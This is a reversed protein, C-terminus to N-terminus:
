KAKRWSPPKIHAPIRVDDLPLKTIERAPTHSPLSAGTARLTEALASGASSVSKPKAAIDQKARCVLSALYADVLDDSNANVEGKRIAENIAHRVSRTHKTARWGKDIVEIEGISQGNELYCGASRIDEEARIHVVVPHGILDFRNSLEENTYHASDIQVYPRRLKGKQIKGRVIKTEVVVGLPPTQATVPPPIRPLIFGNSSVATDLVKLPTQGGLGRQPTANYDAMLADLIDILDEWDIGYENARHVSPPKLADNPNSGTSSPLIQFGHSELTRFFRELVANRWWAKIPGYSLACGLSKRLAHLMRNSYHQAANDMMVVCPRFCPLGDITGVPLGGGERYKINSSRLPRRQWPQQAITFAHEIISSSLEKAISASYGFVARSGHDQVVSIWLRDIAVSQIGAPGPVRVVGICHIKHADVHAIDFPARAYDFAYKGKGIALGSSAKEGYWTGIASADAAILKRALRQISRRGKSGSNLPYSNESFGKERLIRKFAQWVGEITPSARKIKTDTSGGYKIASKLKELVDPNQKLFANLAGARGLHNEQKGEPLDKKREYAKIRQGRILGRWGILEGDDNTQLCRNLQALLVSKSCGAENAAAKLKGTNLYLRIGRSLRDFRLQVDEDYLSLDATPWDDCKRWELPISRYTFEAKAMNM